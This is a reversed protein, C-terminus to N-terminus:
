KVYFIGRSRTSPIYPTASLESIKNVICDLSITRVKDYLINIIRYHEFDKILEIYM